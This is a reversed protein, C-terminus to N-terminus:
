FRVFVFCVCKSISIVACTTGFRLQKIKLQNATHSSFCVHLEKKIEASPFM